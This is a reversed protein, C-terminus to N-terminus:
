KKPATRKSASAKKPAAKKPAAKKETPKKAPAKKTATKKTTKAKSTTAKSIAKEVAKKAVSVETTIEEKLKKMEDGFHSGKGDKNKCQSADCCCINKYFWGTLAKMQNVWFGFFKAIYSTLMCNSGCSNNDQKKNTM